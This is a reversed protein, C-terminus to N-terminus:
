LWACVCVVPPCVGVCTFVACVHVCVECSHVGGHVCMSVGVYVHVCCQWLEYFGLLFFPPLLAPEGRVLRSSQASKELKHPSSPLPSFSCVGNGGLAWAGADWLYRSDADRPGERTLPCLPGCAQLFQSGGRRWEGPHGLILRSSSLSLVPYVTVASHM